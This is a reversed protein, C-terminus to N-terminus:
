DFLGVDSPVTLSMFGSSEKCFTSSRELKDVKDAPRSSARAHGLEESVRVEMTLTPKKSLVSNTKCTTNIRIKSPAVIVNANSQSTIGDLRRANQRSVPNKTKIKPQQDTSEIHKASLKNLVVTSSATTGEGNTTKLKATRRLHLTTPYVVPRKINTASGSSKHGNGIVKHTISEGNNSASQKAALIERSKASVFSRRAPATVQLNNKRIAVDRPSSTASNLSSLRSSKSGTTTNTNTTSGPSQRLRNAILNKSRVTANFLALSEQSASKNSRSSKISSHMSGGLSDISIDVESANDVKCQPLKTVSGKSGSASSDRGSKPADSNATKLNRSHEFVASANVASKLLHSELSKSLKKPENIHSRIDVMTRRDTSPPHDGLSSRNNTNDAIAQITARNVELSKNAQREAATRVPRLYLTTPREAALLPQHTRQAAAQMRNAEQERKSQQQIAMKVAYLDKSRRVANSTSPASSSSTCGTSTSNNGSRSVLTPEYMLSQFKFM